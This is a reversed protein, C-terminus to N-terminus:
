PESSSNHSTSVQGRDAIRPLRPWALAERPARDRREPLAADLVGSPGDRRLRPAGSRHSMSRDCNRIPALEEFGVVAELVGPVARSARGRGRPQPRWRRETQAAGGPHPDESERVAGLRVGSLLLKEPFEKLV